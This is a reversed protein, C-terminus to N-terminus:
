SWCSWCLRSVLTEAKKKKKKERTQAAFQVDAHSLCRTCGVRSAPLLIQSRFENGLATNAPLTPNSSPCMSHFTCTARGTGLLAGERHLRLQQKWPAAPGAPLALAEPYRPGCVRPTGGAAEAPSLDMRVKSSELKLWKEKEQKQHNQNKAIKETKNGSHVWCSSGERTLLLFFFWGASVQQKCAAALVEGWGRVM